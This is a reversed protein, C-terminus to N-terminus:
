MGEGRGECGKCGEGEGWECGEGKVQCKCYLYKESEPVSGSRSGEGVIVVALNRM